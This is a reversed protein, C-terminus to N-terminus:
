AVVFTLEPGQRVTYRGPDFTEGDLVFPAGIQMSFGDVSLHHLGSDYLWRPHWGALMAPAFGMVRRLPADLLLIRIRDQHKGFLKIGLPLRKLTSALLISRRGRDGRGSHQLHKGSDLDVLDMQTGRRWKSAARGFITQGIGWASTLGVALSDFFGMRHADQGSQIGLTFIGAGLIFGYMPAGETESSAIEIPRRVVRNGSVFADVAQELRWSPPAGLDANLANTKGRPLVALEPWNGAFIDRGQTLVDRVTGDGGSIILYDINSAAFERLADAIAPRTQPQALDLAPHDPVVPEKGKNRHCKPNYIVGIRPVRRRENSRDSATPNASGKTTM